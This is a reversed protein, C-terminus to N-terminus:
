RERRLREIDSPAPHVLVVGGTGDAALLDGPRAWSFLGAVESVLPLHAATAIAIAAPSVSSCALL